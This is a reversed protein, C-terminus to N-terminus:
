ERKAISHREVIQGMLETKSLPENNEPHAMLQSAVEAGMLRAPLNITTLAPVISGSWDLNGFGMVSMDRPVQVGAESLGFYGALALVDSFCLTATFRRLCILCDGPPAIATQFHRCTKAEIDAPAFGPAYGYV